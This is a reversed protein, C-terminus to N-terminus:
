TEPPTKPITSSARSQPGHIVILRDYPSALTNFEKVECKYPLHSVVKEPELVDEIVYIGDPELLLPILVSATLVQHEAMHSGDDIVLDFGSGAWEAARRLSGEDGQDCQFSRIRGENVLIDPRIDLGYIEADPFYEQWMFLNSGVTHYGEVHEMNDPCGIGVELMKRVDKKGLLAHYYPTYGHLVSPDKDSRWKTALQCLDVRTEGVRAWGKPVETGFLRRGPVAVVREGYPLPSLWAGWWPFSSAALVGHRCRSMAWVDEAAFPFYWGQWVSLPTTDEGEVVSFGYPIRFDRKCWEPDDSFVFFHPDPTHEAVKGCAELYYETPLELDTGVFGRRVCLFASRPGKESIDQLLSATRRAIPQRPRFVGTLEQRIGRFYRESQWYGDLCDGDRVREDLGRDYGPRGESVTPVAGEARPQTVGEWQDLAYQLSPLTRGGPLRWPHERYWDIGLRLDTGLRRALALGASYQFMQNGLGGKIQVTLM